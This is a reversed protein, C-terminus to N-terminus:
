TQARRPPEQLVQQEAYQTSLRLGLVTVLEFWRKHGMANHTLRLKPLLLPLTLTRLRLLPSAM